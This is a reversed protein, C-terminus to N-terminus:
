RRSRYNFQRCKFSVGVDESVEIEKSQDNSVLLTTVSVFGRHFFPVMYFDVSMSFPRVLKEPFESTRRPFKGHLSMETVVIKM